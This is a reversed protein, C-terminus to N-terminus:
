KPNEPDTFFEAIPSIWCAGRVFESQGSGGIERDDQLLHLVGEVRNSEFLGTVTEALEIKGKKLPRYPFAVAHFHGAYTEQSNISRFMSPFEQKRTVAGAALALSKTHARETTFSLWDVAEPYQFPGTVSSGAVPTKTLAAGVLGASECVMVIAFTDKKLHDFVFELIESLGISVGSEKTEFRILSKWSGECFLGYLVMLEPVFKGSAVLYDPVGTGDTPLYAASGGVSLFEGFRNRSEEYTQGFAGLGLGFTSSSLIIKRASTEDYRCGELLSPDGIIKCRQSASEKLHFVEFSANGREIKKGPAQIIGTAAEAPSLFTMLGALDLVARAPESIRSIILSGQIGKLQQYFSLLVRIGASSIYQVEQFDLRVHHIGSRIVASMEASLHDSWYADLRGSVKFEVLDEKQQKEIEM